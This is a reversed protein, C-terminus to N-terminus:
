AAYGAAVYDPQMYTVPDGPLSPLPTIDRADRIASAATIRLYQRTGLPVPDGVIDLAQGRWRIRWTPDVGPRHRIVIQHSISTQTQMAAFWERTSLPRVQAWVEVVDAWAPIEEGLGNIVPAPRQLTVREDLVPPKDLTSM